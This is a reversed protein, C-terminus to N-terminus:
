PNSRLHSSASQAQEIRIAVEDALVQVNPPLLLSTHGGPVHVTEVSGTVYREWGLSRSGARRATEQTYFM